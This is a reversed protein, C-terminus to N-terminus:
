PEPFDSGDVLARDAAKKLDSNFKDHGSTQLLAAIRADVFYRSVQERCLLREGGLIQIYTFGHILLYRLEALLLNWVALAWQSHKPPEGVAAPVIKRAFVM